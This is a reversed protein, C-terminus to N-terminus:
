WSSSHLLTKVWYFVGFQQHIGWYSWLEFPMLIVSILVTAVYNNAKTFTRYFNCFYLEQVLLLKRTRYCRFCIKLLNKWDCTFSAKHGRSKLITPHFASYQIIWHFYIFLQIIACDSPVSNSDALFGSYHFKFHFKDITNNQLSSYKNSVFKSNFLRLNASKIFITKATELSTLYLSFYPALKCTGSIMSFLAM